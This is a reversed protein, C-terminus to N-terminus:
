PPNNTKSFHFTDEFNDSFHYDAFEFLKLLDFSNEIRKIIKLSLIRNITFGIYSKLLTQFPVTNKKLWSFHIFIMNYEFYNSYLM